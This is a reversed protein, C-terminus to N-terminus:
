RGMTLHMVVGDKEKRANWPNHDIKDLPLEIPYLM